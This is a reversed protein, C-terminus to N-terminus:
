LDVGERAYYALAKLRDAIFDIHEPEVHRNLVLYVQDALALLVETKRDKSDLAAQLASVDSV